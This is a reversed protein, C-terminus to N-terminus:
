YQFESGSKQENLLAPRGVRPGEFPPIESQLASSVENKM